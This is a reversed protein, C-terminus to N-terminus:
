RIQGVHRGSHGVVIRHDVLRVPARRSHRAGTAAVMPVNGGWGANIM